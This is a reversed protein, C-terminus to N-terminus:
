PCAMTGSTTGSPGPATGFSSVLFGFDPFGVTCGSIPEVHCKETDGTGFAAVFQGFDPFGVTGNNDYDADCLNGCDDGDTDDQGPNHVDLCNDISCEPCPEPQDLVRLTFNNRVSDDHHAVRIVVTEGPDLAYIGALPLASDFNNPDAFLSCAQTLGLDWDDNELIENTPKGPCRDQITEGAHVSVVTDIAYSRQTSCTSIVMDGAEGQTYSYWVDGSRCSNHGSECGDNSSGVIIEICTKGPDCDVDTTCLEKPTTDSCVWESSALLNGYIQGAHIPKAQSCANAGPECQVGCEQEVKAVCSADWDDTLPDGDDTCCSPDEFCVLATCENCTSDLAVGIECPNHDCVQACTPDGCVTLVQDICNDDWEVTCCYPDDNPLGCIADVCPDCTPNLKGGFECLSHACAPQAEAPAPWSLWCLGVAVLLWHLGPLPSRRKSRVRFGSESPHCLSREADM